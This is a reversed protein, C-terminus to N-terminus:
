NFVATASEHPNLNDLHNLLTDFKETISLKNNQWACETQFEKCLFSILSNEDPQTARIQLPTLHNQLEQLTTETKEALAKLDTANQKGYGKFFSILGQKDLYNLYETCAQTIKTKISSLNLSESSPIKNTAIVPSVSSVKFEKLPKAGSDYVAIQIDAKETTENKQYTITSFGYSETVPEITAAWPTKAIGKNPQSEGGGRGDIFLHRWIKNDTKATYFAAYHKHGSGILNFLTYDIKQQAHNQNYLALQREFVKQLLAGM